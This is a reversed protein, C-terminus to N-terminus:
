AHPRDCFNHSWSSLICHWFLPCWVQQGVQLKYHQGYWSVFHSEIRKTHALYDRLLCHHTQQIHWLFSCLFLSCFKARYIKCWVGSFHLPFTHSTSFLKHLGFKIVLVLIQHCLSQRSSCSATSSSGCEPLDTLSVVFSFLHHPMHQLRILRSCQSQYCIWKIPTM